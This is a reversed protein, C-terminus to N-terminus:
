LGPLFKRIFGFAFGWVRYLPLCDNSVEGDVALNVENKCIEIGQIGNDQAKLTTM